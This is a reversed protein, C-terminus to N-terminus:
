LFLVIIIVNIIFFLLFFYHYYWYSYHYFHSHHEHYHLCDSLLSFYVHCLPISGSSLSSHTEHLRSIESCLSPIGTFGEVSFFHKQLQGTLRFTESFPLGSRSAELPIQLSAKTPSIQSFTRSAEFLHLTNQTSPECHATRIIPKRTKSGSESPIEM